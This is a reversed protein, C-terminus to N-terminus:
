GPRTQQAHGAPHAGKQPSSGCPRCELQRPQLGAVASDFSYGIDRMAEIMVSARPMLEIVDPERSSRM